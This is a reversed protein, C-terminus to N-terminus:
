VEFRKGLFKEYYVSPEFWGTLIGGDVPLFAGTIMSAKESALFVVADAIEEPEILRGMPVQRQRAYDQKEDGHRMGTAVPGPLVMNVNVGYPAMEFALHRTFSNLGSKSTAYPIGGLVGMRQGATSGIIIIKGHRKTKMYPVVARCCIFVGSLNVSIVEKWDEISIEELPGKKGLIGASNVLIDISGYASIVSEVMVQVQKEDAVSGQITKGEGGRSSVLDLVAETKQGDIDYIVVKAGEYALALTISRGIGSGGGTVIATYGKFLMETEM